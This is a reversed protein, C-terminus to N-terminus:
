IKNAVTLVEDAQFCLSGVFEREIFSDPNEHSQFLEEMLEVM